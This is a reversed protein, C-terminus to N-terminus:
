NRTPRELSEVHGPVDQALLLALQALEHAGEGALPNRRARRLDVRRVLERPVDDLEEAVLADEPEEEVLLDAAGTRPREKREDRDLLDRLDAGGAPQDECHLLEAREPQLETAGVLLARGPERAKRRALNQRRVCEGLRARAGVRRRHAGNRASVVPLVHEVPRLPEDRVRTNRAQVRHERLGIRIRSMRPDRREQDLGIRGAELDRPELLLHADCPRRGALQHEIAATNGLRASEPGLPGAEPECHPDEVARPGTYGRLREPDCLARGVVRELVGPRALRHALRDRLM